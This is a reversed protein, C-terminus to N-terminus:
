EGKDKKDVQKRKRVTAPPTVPAGAKVIEGDPEEVDSDSSSDDPNPALNLEDEDDSSVIIANSKKVPRPATM